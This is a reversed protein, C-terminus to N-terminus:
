QRRQLKQFLMGVLKTIDSDSSEVFFTTKRGHIIIHFNFREDRGKEQLSQQKETSILPPPCIDFWVPIIAHYSDLVYYTALSIARFNIAPNYSGNDNLKVSYPFVSPSNKSTPFFKKAADDTFFIDRNSSTEGSSILLITSLAVGMLVLLDAFYPSSIKILLHTNFAIFYKYVVKTVKTITLTFSAYSAYYKGNKLTAPCDQLFFFDWFWDLFHRLLLEIVTQFEKVGQRSLLIARVVLRRWHFGNTGGDVPKKARWRM